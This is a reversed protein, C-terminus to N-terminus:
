KQHPDTNKILTGIAAAPRSHAIQSTGSELFRGGQPGIQGPRHQGDGAQPQHQPRDDLRRHVAPRRRDHDAGAHGAQRTRAPKAAQSRALEWGISFRANKPL